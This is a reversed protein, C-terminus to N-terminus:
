VKRHLYTAIKERIQDRVKKFVKRKEADTGEAHAPDEFPWHLMEKAGPFHPCSERASDCVTIVLDFENESFEDLHKSRAESLDIGTDRMVEVALPHVYGAPNSGASDARWEGRGLANWFGEAMQSRCSNGTCLILVRKTM